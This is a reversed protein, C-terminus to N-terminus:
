KYEYKKRFLKGNFWSSKISNDKIWMPQLNTYHFCKRQEEIKNLDFSACPKIHDVSWKKGYNNWNMGYLFQSEIHKILEKITCGVLDMTRNLKKVNQSKLGERLRARLSRLIRYETDNQTRNRWYENRWKKNKHEWERRKERQAKRRNPEEYYKNKCLKCYSSLGDKSYKTKTFTNANKHKGCVPCRKKQPIIIENDKRNKLKEMHKRARINIKERNKDCYNKFCKKCSCNLGDINNKCKNFEQHSKIEKCRSCKKTKNNVRNNM